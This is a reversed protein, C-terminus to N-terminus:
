RMFEPVTLPIYMKRKLTWLVPWHKLCNRKGAILYRYHTSKLAQAMYPESANERIYRVKFDKDTDSYFLYLCEDIFKRALFSSLEDKLEEYLGKTRVYDYTWKRLFQNNELQKPHHVRSASSPTKRYFFSNQQIYCVKEACCYLQLSFATDESLCLEEPFYIQNKILFERRILKACCSWITVYDMNAAQSIAYRYKAYQMVARRLLDPSVDRINSVPNQVAATEEDLFCYDFLIIDAEIDLEHATPLFGPDLIDDSDLFVIWDGKASSIGCNRAKSVGATELQVAKVCPYTDNYGCCIAWSSDSSGNEVLIVEDDENLGQLVSEVCEKLYKESNHVPIIVSISM